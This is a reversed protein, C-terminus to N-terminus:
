MKKRLNDLNQKIKNTQPFKNSKSKNAALFYVRKVLMEQDAVNISSGGSNIYRTTTESLIFCESSHSKSLKYYDM